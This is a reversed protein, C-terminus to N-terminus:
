LASIVAIATITEDPKAVNSIVTAKKVTILITTTVAFTAAAVANIIIIVIDSEIAFSTLLSM